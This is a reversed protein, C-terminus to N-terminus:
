GAVSIVPRNKYLHENVRHEDKLAARWQHGEPTMDLRKHYM